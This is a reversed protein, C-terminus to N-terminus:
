FLELQESKGPQKQKKKAKAEAERKAKEAKIRELLKDAPEDTPDQPVLKGEFAKKLISQRLKEARKLNQNIVKELEDAVSLRREVEAIIQHQEAIPPLPLIFNSLQSTFMHQILSGTNLGDVFRRFIRSKFMWLLYKPLVEIPTLRAIRQNLLCYESLGTICVRGLFEDRLSQATLNIVLEESGVLFSPFSSAWHEPMYRTNETTWVVKGSEHLNGPRLLKVGSSQYEKSPFSRGNQSFGVQEWAVWVWGEPLEHLDSTDPAVPEKYKLKWSDDKPTKGKVKMQALQQAEWKERREKLIRELLVSAPELEGQHAERWDKTLKGEVAAKLVAQRYRKLKAKLKKLLEVGADLQTFLEEIKAIIRHQEPLPPLPIIVARIDDLGLGTKTAGRQLELFQKQGRERSALFWAIYSINVVSVPRALAIHQNIYAEEIGESIQAIMGIDATISILIDGPIVRSRIGEAGSPPQVRQIDKLDLAISDHNLNGMRLFIAGSDSYYKAWGRSGSTVFYFIDDGTSWVWGKPLEPLNERDGM